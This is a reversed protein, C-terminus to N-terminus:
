LAAATQRLGQVAKKYGPWTEGPHDQEWQQRFTAEQATRVAEADVAAMEDRNRNTFTVTDDDALQITYDPLHQAAVVEGVQRRFEKRACASGSKKHLLPLNCKWSQQAGCHKRAIEYLRREIPKRLRFFGRNITLVERSEIARILWDSLKLSFSVMRGSTERKIVTLQDFLNFSTETRLKGTPVNTKIVTGKLRDLAESLLKYGRTSVQRNTAVLLDRANITIKQHVVGSRNAIETVQGICYLWVDKDFITPLGTGSPRIEIITGNHEYSRIKTDGAKLAFFPHEMSGLDDKPAADLVDCVFFDLNPHREPLLTSANKQGSSKADKQALFNALEQEEDRGGPAYEALQVAAIEAAAPVKTSTDKKKAM